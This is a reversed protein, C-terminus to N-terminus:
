CVFIIKSPIEIPCFHHGVIHIPSLFFEFFYSFRVFVINQLHTQNPLYGNPKNLRKRRGRKGSMGATHSISPFSICM